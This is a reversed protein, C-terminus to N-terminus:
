APGCETTLPDGGRSASAAWSDAEIARFHAQLSTNKDGCRAVKDFDRGVQIPDFLVDYKPDRAL